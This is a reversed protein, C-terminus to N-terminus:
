SDEPLRRSRQCRTGSDAVANHVAKEDVIALYVPNALAISAGGRGEVGHCAACNQAYLTGFHHTPALQELGKRLNAMHLVAVRSSHLPRSHRIYVSIPDPEHRAQRRTETFPEPAIGARLVFSVNERTPISEHRVVVLGAWFAVQSAVFWFWDIHSASCRITCDSVQTCYGLM